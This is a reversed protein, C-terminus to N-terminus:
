KVINQLEGFGGIFKNNHIIAPVYPYEEGDFGLKKKEEESLKTDAIHKELERRQTPDKEMDHFMYSRKHSELYENAKVTYPCTERGYVFFEPKKDLHNGDHKDDHKDDYNKRVKEEARLHTLGCRPEHEVESSTALTRESVKVAPQSVGKLKVTVFTLM